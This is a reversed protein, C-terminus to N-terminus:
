RYYMTVRGETMRTYYDGSLEKFADKDYDAYSVLFATTVAALDQFAKVQPSGPAVGRGSYLTPRIAGFWALHKNGAPSLAYPELKVNPSQSNADIDGNGTVVMLPRAVAAWSGDGLGMAGRGQPSLLLGAFFRADAAAVPAGGVVPQAGMLLQAAFAGYSHGAVIPRDSAIRMGTMREVIEVADLSRRLTSARQRWDSPDSMFTALDRRQAGNDLLSDNHIPAFVAFGHSAWHALLPQYVQPNTLEGHSFIVARLQTAQKPVFVMMPLGPIPEAQFPQHPAGYPGLEGFKAYRSNSGTTPMLPKIELMGDDKSTKEAALAAGPIAALAATLFHRRTLMRDESDHTNMRHAFPLMRGSAKGRNKRNEKEWRCDLM